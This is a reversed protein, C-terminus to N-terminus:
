DRNSPSNPQPPNVPDRRLRATSTHRLRCSEVACLSEHKLLVCLLLSVKTKRGSRPFHLFHAPPKAQFPAVLQTQGSQLM